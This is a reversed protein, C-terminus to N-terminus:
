RHTVGNLLLITTYYPCDKPSGLDDPHWGEILVVTGWVDAKRREHQRTDLVVKWGGTVVHTWSNTPGWTWLCWQM